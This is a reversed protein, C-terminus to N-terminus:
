PPWNPPASLVSLFHESKKLLYSLNLGLEEGKIQLEM